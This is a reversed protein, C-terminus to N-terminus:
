LCDKNVQIFQLLAERENPLKEETVTELLMALLKGVQRGQPVGAELIDTGNVALDAYTICAADKGALEHIM